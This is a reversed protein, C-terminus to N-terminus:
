EAECSPCSSRFREAAARRPFSAPAPCSPQRGREGEAPNRQLERSPATSSPGRKQSSQREGQPCALCRQWTRRQQPSRLRTGPHPYRLTHLPSKGECGPQSRGQGGGPRRATIGASVICNRDATGGERSGPGGTPSPLPAERGAPAPPRERRAPAWGPPVFQHRDWPERFLDQPQWSLTPKASSSGGGPYTLPEPPVRPRPKDRPTCQLEATDHAWLQACLMQGPEASGESPRASGPGQGYWSEQLQTGRARRAGAREPEPGM